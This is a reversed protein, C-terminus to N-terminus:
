EKMTKRIDSITMFLKYPHHALPRFGYLEYFARVGDKADVFVLPYGVTESASLVRRLADVLLREGYGKGQFRRDVALRAILAAGKANRHRKILKEPLGPWELAIVTVTYFGLIREPSEPDILVYTRSNDKRSQQAAQRRLFNDLAIIGCGFGHRDHRSPDLAEVTM